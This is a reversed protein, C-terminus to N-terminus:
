LSARRPVDVGPRRERGGAPAKEPSPADTAEPAERAERKAKRHRSERASRDRDQMRMSRSNPMPTSRAAASHPASSRTPGDRPRSTTAENPRAASTVLRRRPNGTSRRDPAVNAWSVLRQLLARRRLVFRSRSSARRDPSRNCSGRTSRPAEACIRHARRRPSAAEGLDLAFAGNTDAAVSALITRGDFTGREIWVRAQAVPTGDHADIVRGRWGVEGRAAPRVVDLRPKARVDMRRGGSPPRLSPSRRGRRSAGSSSSSSSPSVRSSSRRRRSSAPAASRCAPADARRAARVMRLFARCTAFDFSPKPDAQVAGHVHAHAARARTRRAGCTQRGRRRGASRRAAKM